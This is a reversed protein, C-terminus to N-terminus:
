QAEAAEDEMYYLDDQSVSPEDSQDRDAVRDRRFQIYANRVSAYFDLSSERERRIDEVVFSQANIFNGAQAAFTAFLPVSVGIASFTVAGTAVDTVLGFTDRVSSPGFIPLVLYPGEPVGWYGLTQGFDEKHIPVNAAGAADIFGALGFTSNMIFRQIEQLTAVPKLQLMTNLVRIPFALNTFFNRMGIRLFGPFVWTWATAVPEAFYRNLGENFGFVPRNFGQWPDRIEGVESESGFDLDDYVTADAPGPDPGPQANEAVPADAAAAPPSDDALAAGSLLLGAALSLLLALRRWTGDPFSSAM